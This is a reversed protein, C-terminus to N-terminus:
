DPMELPEGIRKAMTLILARVAPAIEAPLAAEIEDHAELYHASVTVLEMSWDAFSRRDIRRQDRIELSSHRPDARLREVLADIAGDAGEVIQLFRTGNFLLLGTIGDLANLRRATQHIDVLDGGTLDFRALSTYALSKLQM